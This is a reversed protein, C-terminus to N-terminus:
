SVTEKADCHTWLSVPIGDIVAVACVKVYDAGPGSCPTETVAGDLHDAWRNVAARAEADALSSIQGNIRPPEALDFGEILWGCIQPLHRTTPSALVALVAVAREIEAARDTDALTTM